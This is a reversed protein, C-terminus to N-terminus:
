YLSPAKKKKKCKAFSSSKFPHLSHCLQSIFTDLSLGEIAYSLPSIAAFDNLVLVSKRRTTQKMKVSECNFAGLSASRLVSKNCCVKWVLFETGILYNVWLRPQLIHKLNSLNGSFQWKLETYRQWTGESTYLRRKEKIKREEETGSRNTKEQFQSSILIGIVASGCFPSFLMSVVNEAEWIIKNVEKTDGTSKLDKLLWQLFTLKLLNLLM